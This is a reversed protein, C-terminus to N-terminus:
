CFGLSVETLGQDFGISGYLVRYFGLLVRGFRVEAEKWQRESRCSRELYSVQGEGALVGLAGAAMELRGGWFLEEAMRRVKQRHSGRVSMYHASGAM